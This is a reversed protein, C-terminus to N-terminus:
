RTIHMTTHAGIYPLLQMMNEQSIAVCGETGEYDNSAIHFFIASGKGAVPVTDNYGLPIIINYRHDKRWLQEHQADFPLIVHRNYHSHHMDDCWGDHERLIRPPMMTKNLTIRDPRVWLERLAFSGLPTKHDGEQKQETVGAKGLACRMVHNNFRLTGDSTVHIDTM